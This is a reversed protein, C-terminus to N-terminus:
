APDTAPKAAKARMEVLKLTMRRGISAQVEPMGEQRMIDVYMGGAAAAVLERAAPTWSATGENSSLDAIKQRAVGISATDDRGFRPGKAKSFFSPMETEGADCGHFYYRVDVM